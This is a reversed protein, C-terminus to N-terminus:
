KANEIFSLFYDPMVEEGSSLTDGHDYSFSIGYKLDESCFLWNDDNRYDACRENRGWGTFTANGISRELADGILSYETDELYPEEEAFNDVVDLATEADSYYSLNDDVYICLGDGYDGQDARSCEAWKSNIENMQETEVSFCIGVAPIYLGDPALYALIGDSSEYQKLFNNNQLGEFLAVPDVPDGTESYLLRFLIGNQVMYFETGLYYDPDYAFEIDGAQAKIPGYMRPNNGDVDVSWGQNDAVYDDLTGDYYNCSLIAQSASLESTPGVDGEVTLFVNISLKLDQIKKNDKRIIVGLDDNKLGEEDMYWLIEPETEHQEESEESKTDIVSENESANEAADIAATEEATETVESITENGCGSILSASIVTALALRLVKKM